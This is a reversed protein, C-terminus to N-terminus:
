YGVNLWTFSITLNKQRFRSKTYSNYIYIFMTEEWLIYSQGELILWIALNRKTDWIHINLIHIHTHFRQKREFDAQRKNSNWRNPNRLGPLDSCAAALYATCLACHVPLYAVLQTRRQAVLVEWKNELVVNWGQTQTRFVFWVGCHKQNGQQQFNALVPQLQGGKM